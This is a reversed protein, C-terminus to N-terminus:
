SGPALVGASVPGLVSPVIPHFSSGPLPGLYVDQLLPSLLVSAKAEGKKCSMMRKGNALGM